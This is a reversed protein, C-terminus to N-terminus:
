RYRDAREDGKHTQGIKKSKIKKTGFIYINKIANDLVEYNKPSSIKIAPVEMTEAGLNELLGTLEGAQDRSRTVVIKKGFLPKSEYWNLKKRLKVTDGVIIVAPPKINNKKALGAINQLNGILTKQSPYTGRMIAAVPTQPSKGCKILNTAIKAINKVGMYFVLTEYASAIKRWDVRSEKKSFDEHGVIIGITSNFARHSLPIGAYASVGVAATIGPVIEFNIGKRTLYAAEEAGRGFVFPDGGKLRAIIKKRGAKKVLLKNISEQPLTHKGAKKGVYIIEANGKVERLFRENVLNDYIVVDAKKLVAMGKVSILGPDGPGAGILYVKGKM